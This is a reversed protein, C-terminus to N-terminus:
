GFRALFRLLLRLWRSGVKGSYYSIAARKNVEALTPYPTIISAMAKISLKSNIALVWPQIIEGAQPGAIAAGLIRGRKTTIVKIMGATKREAIARDNDAFNWRLVKIGKHKERAAAESLGVNALEPETYSVWPIAAHSVKAPLRFLIARIVIGAHYNAIHTFQYSGAVDGIAYIRPNSSRLGADVSIGRKDHEVGAAKLGLGATNPKRGAAVLLHSAEIRSKKGKHEIFISVGSASPAVREISVRSKIAAGENTIQEIVIAALEPDDKGLPEFMELVSVRAGLRCFAQAMEMGIPGGGIIVLHEPLETLDFINENTYFKVDGLGDIPPIAPSSGTAVVFRRARILTDGAKLMDKDIFEGAAEIVKVGLSTFREVSDHPAITSIIQHIHRHVKVFDVEPEHASVGFDASSRAMHARKGAAILAKSPICGTNLCDGGMRGKEVLVVDVGFQAAAAAVSLGGSGAGIVCIDTTLEASM